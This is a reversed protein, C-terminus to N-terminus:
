AREWLREVDEMMKEVAKEIRPAGQALAPYYSKDLLQDALKPRAMAPRTFVRLPKNNRDRQKSRRRSTRSVGRQSPVVYVLDQTIGVRNRAWKPSKPMNEIEALSRQQADKAIPLAADRLTANLRRKADKGAASFARNLERLGRVEIAAGSGLLPGPKNM